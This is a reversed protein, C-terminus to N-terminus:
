QFHTRILPELEEWAKALATASSLLGPLLKLAAVVKSPERQAPPRMAQDALANLSAIATDKQAASLDNGAEPIAGIFGHIRNYLALSDVTVIQHVAGSNAVSVASGSIDGIKIEVTRPGLLGDRIRKEEDKIRKQEEADYRLKFMWSFGLASALGFGYCNDAFQTADRWGFTDGALRCVLAVVFICFTVGTGVVAIIAHPGLSARAWEELSSFTPSYQKLKAGLSVLIGM